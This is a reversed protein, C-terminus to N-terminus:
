FNHNLKKQQRAMGKFIYRNKNKYNTGIYIGQIIQQRVNTSINLQETIYNEHTSDQVKKSRCLRLLHVVALSWYWHLIQPSKMGIKTQHIIKGCVFKLFFPTVHGCNRCEIKFQM